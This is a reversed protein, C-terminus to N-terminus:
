RNKVWKGRENLSYVGQPVWKGDIQFYNEMHSVTIRWTKPYRSLSTKEKALMIAEQEAKERSEKGGTVTEVWFSPAQYGLRSIVDVRWLRAKTNMLVNNM